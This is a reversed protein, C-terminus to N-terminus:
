EIRDILSLFLLRLRNMEEPRNGYKRVSLYGNMVFDPPYNLIADALLEALEDENTTKMARAASGFLQQDYSVNGLILPSKSALAELGSVPTGDSKPVMVTIAAHKYLTWMKQEPLRDYVVFDIQNENCLTNFATLYPRDVASGAGVFILKYKSKLHPDLKSFAKVILENQYLPLLYRPCFIYQRSQIGEPLATGPFKEIEDVEVGTRVVIADDIGFLDAIGKRQLDSTSTIFEAGQFADRYLKKWLVGTGRKRIIAPIDLLVDSGRTSIVYPINVSNAWLCYDTAYQFHLVDIGHRKIQAGLLKSGSRTRIPKSISYDPIPNLLTIGENALRTRVDESLKNQDRQNGAVFVTAYQSMYRFWNLNHSDGPNCLVLIKLCPYSLKGESIEELNRKDPYNILVANKGGSFVFKTGAALGSADALQYARIMDRNTDAGGCVIVPLNTNRTIRNILVLDYGIRWGDRDVSQIFIEGAGASEMKKVLALPSTRLAKRTEYDYVAYGTTTKIVDVAGVVAQSGFKSAIERILGPTRRAASNLIIKEVGMSILREAVALRKVGGGYSFPMYAEDTIRKLLEFDPDRNEATANIDLFILEDAKCDNFIKVANIPDGLYVPQRFKQTKVLGGSSLLLCPIVRPRFSGM